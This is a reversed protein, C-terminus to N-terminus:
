PCTGRIRCAIRDWGGPPVAPTTAGGTLGSGTVGGGGPATTTGGGVVPGTGPPLPIVDNVGGIVRNAAGSVTGDVVRGAEDIRTTVVQCARNVMNRIIGSFDVSISVGPIAIQNLARSVNSLCQKAAAAAEATAAENTSIAASRQGGATKIAATLGNCDIPAAVAPVCGLYAMFAVAVAIARIRLERM